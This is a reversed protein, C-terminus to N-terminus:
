LILMRWFELFVKPCFHELNTLYKISTAFIQHKLILFELQIIFKPGFSYSIQSFRFLIEGEFGNFNWIDQSKNLIMKGLNQSSLIWIANLGLSNLRYPLWETTLINKHLGSVFTIINLTKRGVFVSNTFGSTRFHCMRTSSTM